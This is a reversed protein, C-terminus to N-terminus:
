HGPLFSAIADVAREAFSTTFSWPSPQRIVRLKGRVDLVEYGSSGDAARRFRLDVTAEGVRLQRLRLNPLWEPLHPDVFLVDLPAYPFLGLMAQVMCPVASASWAQPSDAHPYLAPIPHEADRQHGGFLEPLRCYEFISAAEFQAKTLQHLRDDLGYRMLGMAFAAQEAPWVTGRHYSFPNFAPHAASLTRLGWGSFLDPQFLREVTRSVRDPSVIGAAVAHASESGVSRILNGDSDLGMGFCGEEEMWFVENFRSRLEMAEDFLKRSADKEGLWWMLESMRVKSAFAFAQFETPAIPDEVQRGDPYVIADYSDKWAQNKVGQESRTQYAYFGRVQKAARDLWAIGKLAPDLFRRVLEQDGTWHWLNSLVVPYFGPSTLAGYYCGNPNYMLTPLPGTDMQHVFRGPEADRWDNRETAQTAALIGLAGRMIETTFLSAEWGATLVDRGFLAIYVPLGAGPVWGGDRDLDYLRLGILDRRAQELAHEVVFSLPPVEITSQTTEELFRRGETDYRSADAFRGNRHAPEWRQDNEGGSILVACHWEAHPMLEISFQIRGKAEDFVPSSEAGELRVTCSRRLSAKGSNGQHSYEHEASYDWRLEGGGSEAQWRREIKGRQIRKGHTEAPDAFDADLELELKITAAQLTHNTLTVFEEVGDSVFRALKLEISETSAAGGPGLAGHLLEPNATPSEIIYYAIQSHEQVNSIGVPEPAKGNMWYRHVSLLRTEAVYLGQQGHGHLFGDRGTALVTRSRSVYFLEDRPRLRALPLEFASEV